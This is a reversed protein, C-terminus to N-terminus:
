LLGAREGHANQLLQCLLDPHWCDPPDMPYEATTWEKPRIHPQGGKSAGKGALQAAEGALKGLGLQGQLAVALIAVM